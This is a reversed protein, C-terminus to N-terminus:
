QVSETSDTPTKPVDSLEAKSDAPLHLARIFSPFMPSIGQVAVAGLVHEQLERDAADAPHLSRTFLRLFQSARTGPGLDFSFRSGDAAIVQALREGQGAELRLLRGVFAALKAM